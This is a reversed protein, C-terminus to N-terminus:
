EILGCEQCVQHGSAYDFLAPGHNLQLATVLPTGSMKNYIRTDHTAKTLARLDRQLPMLTISGKDPISILPPLILLFRLKLDRRDALDPNHSLAARVTFVVLGHEEYCERSAPVGVEAVERYEVSM